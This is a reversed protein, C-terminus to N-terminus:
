VRELAWISAVMVAFLFLSVVVFVFDDVNGGEGKM